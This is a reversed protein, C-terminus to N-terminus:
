QPARVVLVPCPAHCVVADAVSGLMVRTLGRRGHSGIVIMDAPWAKAANVIETAPDGGELFERVALPLLRRERLEWLLKQGEERALVMLETPPIGAESAYPVPPEAVHILAMEAGLSKALDIGVDAAHGALPGKDVAILIKSFSMTTRRRGRDTSPAEIGEHAV